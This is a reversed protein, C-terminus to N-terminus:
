VIKQTKKPNFATQTTQRSRHWFMAFIAIVAGVMLLGKFSFKKRQAEPDTTTFAMDFLSEGLKGDNGIARIRVTYLQAPRLDTFTARVFKGETKTSFGSILHWTSALNGDVIRLERREAAFNKADSRDVHWEITVGTSSVALTRVIQTQDIPATPDLEHPSWEDSDSSRSAKPQKQTKTSTTPRNSASRYPEQTFGSAFVAVRETGDVTTVDIYSEFSGSAGNTPRVTIVEETAPKLDLRPTSVEVNPGAIVEIHVLQGGANKLKLSGTPQAASSNRKLDIRDPIAQVLGPMASAQVPIKTVLPGSTLTVETQLATVQDPRSRIVLNGSAGPKLTLLEDVALAASSTITIIQEEETHNTVMVGAARIHTGKIPELTVAAPQAELGAIASGSLLTFRDEHSTFRMEGSFEGASEPAFVVKLSQKQDPEIRYHTSGEIRWPAPVGVEGEALAGGRNELEFTQTETTGILRKSFVLERPTALEAPVDIIEIEVSVPASVGEVGKAAYEFSDRSIKRDAPPQYKVSAVELETNKPPTLKGKPARRIVYTVSQNKRGYIRLFIDSEGDRLIKLKQPIPQPPPPPPMEKRKEAAVASFLGFAALLTLFFLHRSPTPVYSM